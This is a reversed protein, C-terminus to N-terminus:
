VIPLTYYGARLSFADDQTRSVIEAVQGPEIQLELVYEPYPYGGLIGANECVFLNFLTLPLNANTVEDITWAGGIRGNPDGLPFVVNTAAKATAAGIRVGVIATATELEAEAWCIRLTIAKSANAPTFTYVWHNGAAPNGASVSFCQYAAVERTSIGRLDGAIAVYVPDESARGGVFQRLFDKWGAPRVSPEM